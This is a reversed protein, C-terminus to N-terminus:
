YCCHVAEATKQLITQENVILVLYFHKLHWIHRIKSRLTMENNKNKKWGKVAIELSTALEKVTIAYLHLNILTQPYHNLPRATMTPISFKWDKELGSLKLERELHAITQDYIEKM